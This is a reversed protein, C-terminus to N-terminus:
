QCEYFSPVMQGAVARMACCGRHPGLSDEALFAASCAVAEYGDLAQTCGPQDLCPAGPQCPKAVPRIACARECISPPPGFGSASWAVDCSQSRPSTIDHVTNALLADPAPDSSGCAAVALAVVFLVLKM